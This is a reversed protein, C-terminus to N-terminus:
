AANHNIISIPFFGVNIVQLMRKMGVWPPQIVASNTLFVIWQCCLFKPEIVKLKQQRSAEMYSLPGLIRKNIMVCCLTRYRLSLHPGKMSCVFFLFTHLTHLIFHLTEHPSLHSQTTTHCHISRYQKDSLLTTFLSHNPHTNDKLIRQARGESSPVHYLTRWPPKLWGSCLGGTKPQTCGM